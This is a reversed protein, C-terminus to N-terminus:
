MDSMGHVYKRFGVKNSFINEAHLKYEKESIYGM